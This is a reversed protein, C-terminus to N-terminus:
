DKTIATFYQQGKGPMPRVSMPEFGMSKGLRAWAANANERPSACMPIGGPLYMVPTPKCAQLLKKLDEETMIFNARKSM